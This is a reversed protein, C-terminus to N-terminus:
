FPIDEDTIEQGHMNPGPPTQAQPPSEQLKESGGLLTLNNVTVEQSYGPEGQRNTWTRVPELNGEVAVQKGKKLYQALIEARKNWLTCNIWMTIKEDNKKGVDVAISFNCVPTGNPTYKLEADRGLRGILQVSRM